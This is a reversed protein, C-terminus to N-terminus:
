SSQRSRVTSQTSQPRQFHGIRFHVVHLFFGADFVARREALSVRGLDWALAVVALLCLLCHAASAPPSVALM